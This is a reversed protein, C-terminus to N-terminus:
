RGAQRHRHQGRDGREAEVGKEVGRGTGWIFKMKYLGMKYGIDPPPPPPPPPIHPHHSVM